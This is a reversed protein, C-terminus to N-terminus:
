DLAGHLWANVVVAGGAMAAVLPVVPAPLEDRTRLTAVLDTADALMAARVWPRAARRRGAAHLMGLGLGVDRAGMAAALVQGGPRDAPAGVWAGAVLRPALVLGAGLAIRGLAQARAVTRPEM